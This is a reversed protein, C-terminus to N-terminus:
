LGGSSCINDEEQSGGKQGEVFMEYPTKSGTIRYQRGRFNEFTYYHPMDVGWLSIGHSWLCERPLTIKIANGKTLEAEGYGHCSLDRWNSEIQLMRVLTTLWPHSKITSEAQAEFRKRDKLMGSLMFALGELEERLYLKRPM